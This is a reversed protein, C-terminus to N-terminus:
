FSIRGTVQVERGSVASGVFAGYPSTPPVVTSIINGFQGSSVDSVPNAFNAHNFVNYFNGGIAFRVRETLTFTKLISFDSNFYGPGRFFNRPITSFAQESTTPTFQNLSLCPTPNAAYTNRAATGCTLPVPAVPSVLFTALSSGSLRGVMGADYVSFPLGTRFFFTQAILWGGAVTNLAKNSFKFPMEWIYNATINHRVDYDSNSYNRSMDTPFLQTLLSDNSSYPLLGGNSSDDSTHSYSYNFRFSLGHKTRQTLSFSLGNYNSIANNTLNAVSRIRLDPRAVPLPVFNRAGRAANVWPNLIFMNYGHNGVYNFDALLTSTIAHQVELNWEVFEPNYIKNNASQYNPTACPLGAARAQAAYNALTGSASGAVSRFISDCTSQASYANGAEGTALPVGVLQITYDNLALSNHMYRDALTAPYLDTFLGAGGRIVTSGAKFYKSNPTWAFGVRPEFNIPEIDPFAQGLNNAFMQSYPITPDHNLQPFATQLRSFCKQYCTTNTNRDARLALTLKLASNVKWEDQAYLGLSSIGVSNSLTLPHRQRIYDNIGEVFDTTSFIYLLPITLVNNSHDSVKNYRYNGGFRFTHNGKTWTFDDVVQVQSVNRGQPFDWLGAANSGGMSTWSSTDLDGLTGPFLSQAATAETGFIASYWMGSIILQNTKTPSFVHNWNIQGENQPQNSTLNFRPNIADTETPQIGRDARYRINVRNADDFVIEGNAALIWETSLSGVNSRLFQACPTGGGLNTGYSANTTGNLGGFQAFGPVVAGSGMTTNLDGCGLNGTTDISNNVPQARNIGPATDWLNFLNSYYANSNNMGFSPLNQVVAAGFQPTPVITLNSTGLVYRLGEYDAFFFIKDKKIPGGISAQWQNNNETPLPTSTANSFFDNANMVKNNYFYVANGHFSNTGTKTVYDVQAGAQRGYQGTYGNSVVGVEQVENTGLLLNTAGSNNLNLYPDNEDNGNVTFLNATAPLGFATFNGYGGGNSTNMLVGPATQAVATLDGGPNPLKTVQDAEFTTTLNANEVQLQPPAAEVQVVENVNGVELKFNTALNQGVTVALTRQEKRFGPKEVALTYNGPKVLTITFFGSSDTQATFAQATGESVLRVTADPVSGGAQDLVTGSVAGTTATQAGVQTAFTGVLVTALVVLVVTRFLKM